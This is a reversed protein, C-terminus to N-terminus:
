RFLDSSSAGPFAAIFSITGKWVRASAASLRAVMEANFQSKHCTMSRTGAELDQPSFEVLTTVHRLEPVLLPPAGRQPSAAQIMEASMYMFFIREPVGPAGARQLQTVISGVMRHDPHGMGGEPGWTIIVDPRIAQLADAIEQTLRYVLARDGIFDGLKGDPFGLLVPRRAGLAEASCVAEGTRVRILDEEGPATEGRAAAFGTGQGGTTAIVLHVEVGERAYRALVPAAPGEDDPHALVAALKRAPTGQSRVVGPLLVLLAIVAKIATM